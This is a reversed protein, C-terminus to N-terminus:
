WLGHAYDAVYNNDSRQDDKDGDEVGDTDTTAWLECNADKDGDENNCTEVINCSKSLLGTTRTSGRGVILPNLHYNPRRAEHHQSYSSFLHPLSSRM